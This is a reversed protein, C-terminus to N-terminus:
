QTDQGTQTKPLRPEPMTQYWKEEIAHVTHAPWGPAPLDTEFVQPLSGDRSTRAAYSRVADVRATTEAAREARYVWLSRHEPLGELLVRRIKLQGDRNLQGTEPDFHHDGLTNQRQWGNAVMRAFPERVAERDAKIFPEPWCNNRKTDRVISRCLNGIPSNAWWTAVPAQQAGDDCVVTEGVVYRGHPTCQM